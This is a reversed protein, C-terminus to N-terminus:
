SKKDLTLVAALVARATQAANKVDTREPVDGPMHYQEDGNPHCGFNAIACPFGARVFSGDDDGPQERMRSTQILGLSYRENMEAMLDALEKGEPAAYMSINTMKGAARDADSKVGMGDTNFVARIKQGRARYGEAAAV